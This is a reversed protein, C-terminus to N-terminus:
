GETVSKELFAHVQQMLVDNATGDADFLLDTHGNSGPTDCWLYEVKPSSIEQKHSVISFKDAPVARDETGHVLLVPVDSQSIQEHAQLNLTDTGFLMAQYLWLFGYNGYALAGVHNYAAGIVGEMASNVGSVSVVASVNFDYALACCAAYGGRSHGFLILEDYGFHNREQLYELTARVDCVTQSFGVASDGQSGCCGTADFAFVSWGYSLLSDIVWLYSDACANQGPVIVVLADKANRATSRYLYGQLTATDGQYQRSIRQAVTNSLAAPTPQNCDYRPFVADYICKTAVLSLTFLALFVAIIVILIRKLKSKKVSVM